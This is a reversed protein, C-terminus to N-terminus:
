SCRRGPRPRRDARRKRGPARAARSTTDTEGGSDTATLRIEIHAPSRTHRHRCRARLGTRSPASATSTATEPRACHVLAVTWDLAAAPLPGDEEDHASGSFRSRTAPRGRRARPPLTSRPSRVARSLSRSRTRTAHRGLHRHRAARGHVHRGASLHAPPARRDLRRLRRRRRPGMRADAPRRPRSRELGTADFTVTLPRSGSVADASARGGDARQNTANGAWRIRKVNSADDDVWLLDGGPAAEIDLPSAAAQAFPVVRGRQPLGDAGPLMAWM